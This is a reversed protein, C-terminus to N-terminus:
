LSAGANADAEDLSGQEYGLEWLEELFSESVGIDTCAKMIEYKRWDREECFFVQDRGEITYSITKGRWGISESVKTRNEM